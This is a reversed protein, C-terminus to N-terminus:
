RQGSGLISVSTHQVRLSRWWCAIYQCWSPRTHLRYCKTKKAPIEGREAVAREEEVPGRQTTTTTTSDIIVARHPSNFPSASDLSPSLCLPTPDVDRPMVLPLARVVPVPATCFVRKKKSVCDQSHHHDTRGNEKQFKDAGPMGLGPTGYKTSRLSPCVNYVFFRHVAVLWM